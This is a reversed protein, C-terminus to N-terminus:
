DGNPCGPPQGRKKYPRGSIMADYADAISLIRSLLPIREGQLGYPYGTGDWREHHTLIAEAITTLNPVSRAINNGIEPHKKIIQWEEPTLRGPKLLINEPIAIEGIDHLVALIALEDREASSLGLADGMRLALDQVLRGYELTKQTKEALTRQFYAVTSFRTNNSALKKWYMMDEAERLVDETKQDVDKKTAVGLSVSM